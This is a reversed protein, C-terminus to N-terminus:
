CHPLYAFFHLAISADISVDDGRELYERLATLKRQTTGGGKSQLFEAISIPFEDWPTHTIKVGTHYIRYYATIIEYFVKWGIARLLIGSSRKAPVCLFGALIVVAHDHTSFDAM